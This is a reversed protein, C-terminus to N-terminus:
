PTRPRLVLDAVFVEEDHQVGRVRVTGDPGDGERVPAAEIWCPADFEAYRLFRSRLGLMLWDPMGVAARAAQRAAELLMMGPIHDVPHDFFTPNGTDVRLEWRNDASGPRTRALLVQRECSQGVGAPDAAAPVARCATVPRGARLRRHVVPSVCTFSAAATALAKGDRLATVHYRMGSLAGGSRVTPHCDVRLEVETPTPRVALLEPDTTFSMGEMLFQHGLPVGFEAHALLSGAQRASEILLMSDQTGSSAAFLSHARPWQASVFFTRPSGAAAAGVAKWGTLFVESVASRHVYERPVTTTLRLSADNTWGRVADGSVNGTPEAVAERMSDTAAPRTLTNM